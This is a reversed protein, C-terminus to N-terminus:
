RWIEYKNELHKYNSLNELREKGMIPMLFKHSKSLVQFLNM